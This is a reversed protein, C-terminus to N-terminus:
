NSATGHTWPGEVALIAAQSRGDFQKLANQALAIGRWLSKVTKTYIMKKLNMRKLAAAIADPDQQGVQEIFAQLPQGGALESLREKVEAQIRLLEAKRRSQREIEPLQEPDAVLAQICLQHLIENNGATKEQEEDLKKQKERQDKALHEFRQRNELHTKLLSKLEEVAREPEYQSFQPALDAVTEQVRQHFEKRNREIADIRSQNRKVEDYRALIANLADIYEIAMGPETAAPLQLSSIAETWQVLWQQIDQVTQTIQRQATDQREVLDELRLAIDQRQKELRQNQEITRRALDVWPPTRRKRPCKSGM